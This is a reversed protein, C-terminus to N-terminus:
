TGVAAMCALQACPHQESESSHGTGHQPAAAAMDLLLVDGPQPAQQEARSALGKHLDVGAIHFIHFLQTKCLHM